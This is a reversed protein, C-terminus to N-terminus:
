AAKAKRGFTFARVIGILGIVILSIGGFLVLVAVTGLPVFLVIIGAILSVIGFFIALGRSSAGSGSEALAVVGEIIWGLGILIGLIAISDLPNKLAFVGAIVLLVGLIIDLARIGGSLDKGFIGIAARVVGVILFYLGFLVAVVQLTAGPWVLVLVGIVLAVLGSIGFVLRITTITQQTLKQANLSFSSLFADASPSAQSM